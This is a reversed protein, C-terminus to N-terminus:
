RKALQPYLADLGASLGARVRRSADDAVVEGAGAEIGDLAAAAVQAPDQKPGDVHAAMDTDMYGVHLAVAAIGLPALELRLSNTLSWAAAKAASYAGSQPISIWSLVSLVNLVAGGGNAALIPAFARTMGLTGFYHTEMELRIDALDGDLLGARTSSGANNILLTADGAIAAAAAVSEPDTIDLRLPEVGPLDVAGPDRAGAYVKAAGRALLGAALHRGLGRNAGTVVAVSDRIDM